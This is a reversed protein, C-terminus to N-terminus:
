TNLYAVNKVTVCLLPVVASSVETNALSSTNAKKQVRDLKKRFRMLSCPLWIRNGLPMVPSLFLGLHLFDSLVEVPM